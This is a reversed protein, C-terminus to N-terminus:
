ASSTESTLFSTASSGPPVTGEPLPLIKDLGENSSKFLSPLILQHPEGDQDETYNTIFSGTVEQWEDSVAVETTNFTWGSSVADKYDSGKQVLVEAKVTANKSSDMKVWFSFEYETNNEIRIDQSELYDKINEGLSATNEASSIKIYKGTDHGQEDEQVGGDDGYWWGAKGDQVYDFSPNGILNISEAAGEAAKVTGAMGPVTFNGSTVVMASCLVM